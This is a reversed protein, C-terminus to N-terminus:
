QSLLIRLREQLAELQGTLLDIEAQIKRIETANNNTHPGCPVTTLATRTKPGVHGYGTTGPTGSSVIGHARQWSQVARMTVPGYYGTIRDFTYHGTDRLHTQLQTVDAGSSGLGLSRNLVLCPKPPQVVVEGLIRRADSALVGSKVPRLEPKFQAAGSAPAVMFGENDPAEVLYLDEEIRKPDFAVEHRVLWRKLGDYPILTRAQNLERTQLKQSYQIDTGPIFLPQDALTYLTFTMRASVESAVTRLPVIARKSAFTIEVPSLRGDINGDRDIADADVTVKLAIYYFGGQDVYYKFNSEDNKSYTYDNDDLWDTLADEDDATLVTVDFDGIQKQEIVVVGGSTSGGGGARDEMMAPVPVPVFPNTLNELEEFIDDDAEDVQPRAPVPLIMGFDHADGTFLPELVITETEGDHVILARTHQPPEYFRQDPVFIGICFASATQTTMAFLAIVAVAKYYHKFNM